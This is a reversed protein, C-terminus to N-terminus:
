CTCKELDTRNKIFFEDNERITFWRYIVTMLTLSFDFDKTHRYHSSDFHMFERMFWIADSNEQNKDRCSRSAISSFRFKHENAFNLLSEERVIQNMSWIQSKFKTIRWIENFFEDEIWRNKYVWGICDIDMQKSSEEYFSKTIILNCDSCEDRHRVICDLIYLSHFM